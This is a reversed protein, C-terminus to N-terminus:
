RTWAPTTPTTSTSSAPPATRAGADPGHRDHRPQEEARQRGREQDGAQDAKEQFEATMGGGQIMFGNIVRHFITGDYFKADVYALFNKVTVPARDPDLELVIDGKSTKMVVQPNAPTQASLITAAALILLPLVIFRTM